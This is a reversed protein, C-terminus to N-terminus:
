LGGGRRAGRAVPRGRRRIVGDDHREWWQEFMSGDAERLLAEWEEASCRVGSPSIIGTTGDAFDVSLWDNAAQHLTFERGQRTLM